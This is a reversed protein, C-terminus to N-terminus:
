RKVGILIHSPYIWFIQKMQMVLDDWLIKLGDIVGRVVDSENYLPPCFDHWMILGDTRLLQLAKLTDNIVVDKTHGGDILVSDFFGSPYNTIDWKRSDCYIQCVRHGMEKELYFRGIFGISDTRYSDRQPLGIKKAWTQISPLESKYHGYACSGDPKGEGFPLNITWVTANCEELCYLVGQGQWTGFELHRSPRYNRYIYRFISADDIEMKWDLFPKFFTDISIKLEEKFGLLKHLNKPLAVPIEIDKSDNVNVLKISKLSYSYDKLIKEIEMKRENCDLYKKYVRKALEMEDISCLLKVMNFAAPFLGPDLALAKEFHKLAEDILGQTLYLVGINNYPIAYERNIEIARKFSEFAQNTKGAAFYREGQMNEYCANLISSSSKFDMGKKKWEGIGVSIAAENLDNELRILPAVNIAEIWEIYEKFTVNSNDGSILKKFKESDDLWPITGSYYNFDCVCREIGCVCPGVGPVFKREYVNGLEVPFSHACGSIKGTYARLYFTKNGANCISGKSKFGGAFYLWSSLLTIRPAIRFWEESTYRKPFAKGESDLYIVPSLIIGIKNEKLHEYIEVFRKLMLDDLVFKVVIPYGKKKLAKAKCLFRDVKEIAVSHLSALIWGTKEPPVIDTFTEINKNLNTEMSIMHGRNVLVKLLRQLNPTILPEGGTLLVNFPGHTDFFDCLRRLYELNEIPGFDRSLSDANAICYPCRQNCIRHLDLTMVASQKTRDKDSYLKRRLDGAYEELLSVQRSDWDEVCPLAKPTSFPNVDIVSQYPKKNQQKKGEGMEKPDPSANIRQSLMKNIAEENFDDLELFNYLYKVLEINM